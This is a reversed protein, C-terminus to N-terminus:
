NHNADIEGRILLYNSDIIKFKPQCIGILSGKKICTTPILKVGLIKCEPYDNLGRSTLFDDYDLPHIYAMSLQCAGNSNSRSEYKMLSIINDVSNGNIILSKQAVNYLFDMQEYTINQETIDLIMDGILVNICKDVQSKNFDRLLCVEALLLEKAKYM